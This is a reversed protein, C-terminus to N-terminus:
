VPQVCIILEQEWNFKTSIHRVCGTAATVSQKVPRHEAHLSRASAGRSSFSNWTHIPAPALSLDNTDTYVPLTHAQHSQSM